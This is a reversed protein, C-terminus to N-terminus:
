NESEDSKKKGWDYFNIVENAAAGICLVTLAAWPHATLITAVGAVGTVAKVVLAILKAKDNKEGYNKFKNM